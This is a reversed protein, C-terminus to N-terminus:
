PTLGGPGDNNKLRGKQTEMWAQPADSAGTNAAAGLYDCGHSFDVLYRAQPGFTAVFQEAIWVAGDGVGHGQPRTGFGAAVACSRLADGSEKVSGGFTAALQPTM